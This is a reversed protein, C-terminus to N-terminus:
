CHLFHSLHDEEKQENKDNGEKTDGGATCVEMCHPHTCTGTHTNICAYVCYMHAPWYTNAGRYIYVESPHVTHANIPKHQM